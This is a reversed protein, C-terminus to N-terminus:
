TTPILHVTCLKNYTGSSGDGLDILMMDAAVWSHSKFLIVSVYKQQFVFKREFIEELCTLKSAYEGSILDICRM